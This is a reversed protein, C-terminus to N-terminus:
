LCRSRPSTRAAAARSDRRSRSARGLDDILQAGGGRRDRPARGRSAPADARPADVRRPRDDRDARGADALRGSPRLASVSRDARRRAAPARAQRRRRLPPLAARALARAAGAGPALPIRHLWSPFRRCRARASRARRKGAFAWFRESVIVVGNPRAMGGLRPLEVSSDARALIAELGQGVDGNHVM